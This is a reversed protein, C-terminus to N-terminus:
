LGVTRDVMINQLTHKVKIHISIIKQQTQAQKISTTNLNYYSL